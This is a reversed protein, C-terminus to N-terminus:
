RKAENSKLRFQMERYILQLKEFNHYWGQKVLRDAERSLREYSMGKYM